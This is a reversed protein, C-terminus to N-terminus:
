GDLNKNKSTPVKLDHSRNEGITITAYLRILLGILIIFGILYILIDM